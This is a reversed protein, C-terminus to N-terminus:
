ENNNMKFNLEHQRVLLYGYNKDEPNLALGSTAMYKMEEDPHIFKAPVNIQADDGGSAEGWVPAMSLMVVDGKKVKIHDGEPVAVVLAKKSYPLPNNMVGIIGPGRAAKARVPASNPILIGKEDREMPVVFARVLVDEIPTLEEYMPHINYIGEENYEKLKNNSDENFEDVVIADDIVGAEKSSRVQQEKLLDNMSLKKRPKDKKSM